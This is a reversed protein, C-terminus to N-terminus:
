EHMTHNECFVLKTFEFPQTTTSTRARSAHSSSWLLAGVFISEIDTEPLYTATSKSMVLALRGADPIHVLIIDIIKSSISVIDAITRTTWRCSNM